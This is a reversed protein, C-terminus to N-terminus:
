WHALMVPKDASAMKRKKWEQPEDKKGFLHRVSVRIEMVLCYQGM